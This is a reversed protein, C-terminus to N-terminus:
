RVREHVGHTSGIRGGCRWRRDATTRDHPVAELQEVGQSLPAHRAHPCRAVALQITLDGDLEEVGAEGSGFLCGLAELTLGEGDRADRADMDHADDVVAHGLMVLRVHDELPQVSVVELLQEFALLAQGESHDHLNRLLGAAGKGACVIRAHDVAVDLGGIEEEGFVARVQEHADEVEADGLHFRRLSSVDALEGAGILQEARELVHAGLLDETGIRGDVPTGVQICEAHHCIM